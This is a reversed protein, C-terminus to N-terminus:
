SRARRGRVEPLSVSFVSGEGPTSAVHVHGGHGEVVAKVLSLGLGLGRTGRSTGSRYLRTWILSLENPALGIGTDHVSVTVFGNGTSADIDIRGGPDTYKVANDILNALVQRLRTRDAALVVAPEVASSLTLGKQDAADAYLSVAERVVDTLRLEEIVLRMTGTEAESVDMLTTLTAGIRDAEELASALGDQMSSASDAVLASEALNRFRTLPTRLDHAVNDLAARMAGLLSQIRALLENVLGAIEDLADRTGRAEVRSDFRQTRLIRRLGSELARLPALGVYTLVGGGVAAIITILLLVAALQARLHRLLEDRVHSSRGVQVTIGEGLRATGVELETGDTAHQLRTWPSLAAAFRDLDSLDFDGWGAPAAFYVVEAGPGVVRVLLRDHRGAAADADITRELAPLGGSAFEHVYRGITSALVEHDQAALSQGVLFYTATLLSVASVVFLAAYWLGLRLAFAHRLRDTWRSSM